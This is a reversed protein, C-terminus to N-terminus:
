SLVERADMGPTMPVQTIIYCTAQKSRIEQPNPPALNLMGMKKEAPFVSAWCSLSQSLGSLCLRSGVKSWGAKQVWLDGNCLQASPLLAM